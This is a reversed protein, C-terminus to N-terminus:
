QTAGESTTEAGELGRKAAKAARAKQLIEGRLPKVPDQVDDHRVLEVQYMFGIVIPTANPDLEWGDKLSKTLVQVFEPLGYELITKCITM